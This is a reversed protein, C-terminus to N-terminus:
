RAEGRASAREEIWADIEGSLWGVSNAGLHIRKPFKGARELRWVQVDSIGIRGLLEPKRVIRQGAMDSRQHQMQKKKVEVIRQGAMDSRQHQMQKKKV